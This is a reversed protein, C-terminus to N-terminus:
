QEDGAEIELMGRENADIDALKKAILVLVQQMNVVPERYYLRQNSNAFKGDRRLAITDELTHKIVLLDDCNM